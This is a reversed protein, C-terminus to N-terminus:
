PLFRPNLDRRPRWNPNRYFLFCPHLCWGEKVLYKHPQLETPKSRTGQLCSALPEIGKLEVMYVGPDDLPLVDSKSESYPLEFRDAPVVSM